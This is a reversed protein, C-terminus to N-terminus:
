EFGDGTVFAMPINMAVKETVLALLTMHGLVEGGDVVRVLIPFKRKRAGM